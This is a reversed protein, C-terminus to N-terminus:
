KRIEQSVQQMRATEPRRSAHQRPDGSEAASLVVQRVRRVFVENRRVM